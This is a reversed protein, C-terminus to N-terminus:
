FTNQFGRKLVQVAAALVPAAQVLSSGFCAMWSVRGGQCFEAKSSAGAREKLHLIGLNHGWCLFKLVMAVLYVFLGANQSWSHSPHGLSHRSIAVELQCRYHVM